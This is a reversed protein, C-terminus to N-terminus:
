GVQLQSSDSLSKEKGQTLFLRRRAVLGKIAMPQRARRLYLFTDNRRPQRKEDNDSFDRYSIDLDWLYTRRKKKRTNTSVNSM